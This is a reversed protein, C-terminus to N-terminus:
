ARALFQSAPVTGEAYVQELGSDKEPLPSQRAFEISAQVQEKVDAEMQGAREETLVGIAILQDRFRTLPDNAIWSRVDRDSRYPLGFAGLVGQEAGALGNHDYFRYTKAEILTPGDGNRARAVADRMVSHVALVDQGDVTYGPVDLGKALTSLNRLHISNETPNSVQWGNNEIVIILPLKYHAANKLGGYFWGNNVSGDGGFAVAVQKTGKVKIGYAAGAALIHSVGVIGNMGLIGKSLDTIHMSGGYGKNYGDRKFFIEASMKNLDGGKAILHGHGRHTSVIYDDENLASIAGVAVAEEGIYVHFAGYLDDKGALFVDKIGEEWWRSRLMDNYMAVLKDDPLDALVGVNWGNGARALSTNALVAVGGAVGGLAKMFSRRGLGMRGTEAPAMAGEAYAEGLPAERIDAEMREARAERSVDDIM